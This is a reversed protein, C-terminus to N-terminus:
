ISMARSHTDHTGTSDMLTANEPCHEECYNGGPYAFLQSRNGRVFGSDVTIRVITVEM